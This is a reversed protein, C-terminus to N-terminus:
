SFVKLINVNKDPIPKCCYRAMKLVIIYRSSSRQIRSSTMKIEYNENSFESKLFLTGVEGNATHVYCLTICVKWQTNGQKILEDVGLFFHRTSSKQNRDFKEFEYM